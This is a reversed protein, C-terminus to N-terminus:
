CNMGAIWGTSWCLQLSYGGSPKDINLLDGVIFMRPSVKSEMTYFNVDKQKIGGASVVARDPGLLGLIRLPIAKLLHILKLRDVKSLSHGPTQEDVEALTILSPILAPTAFEKLIVKITKNSNIQLENHFNEKLKTFELDPYLDLKLSLQGQKMLEGVTSSMNLITPGSAGFHTFLFKGRKDYKKKNGQWLSIGIDELVLGSLKKSWKDKLAVPVLALSNDVIEHGLKNLWKYGDGTSGTSPASLGGTAMVCSKTKYTKNDTSITIIKDEENNTIDLIVAGTKIEVENENMYDTLVNLVSSSKNSVPFVRDNEEIKTEMGHSNFFELADSVDFQNFVSYLAKPKNKFSSILDRVELKNNTVNCRGGGSILLKKGMTNNKELLLVSKGRKAATGAAMMGAPGGGIVIVDWNINDEKKM